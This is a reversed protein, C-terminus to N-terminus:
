TAVPAPLVASLREPSIKSGQVPLANLQGLADALDAHHQPLCTKRQQFPIPSPTCPLDSRIPQTIPHIPHQGLGAEPFGRLVDGRAHARVAQLGGLLSSTSDCAKECCRVNCGQLYVGVGASSHQQTLDRSVLDLGVQTAPLAPLSM